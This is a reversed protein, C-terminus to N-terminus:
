RGRSGAHGSDRSVPASAAGAASTSPTHASPASAAVTGSYGGSTRPMTVYGLNSDYRPSDSSGVYVPRPAYVQIVEVPSWFRYGYPSYYSGRFPVFTFMGFYPNWMWASRDYVGGYDRLSKAASVNAMSIYEARRRSWRNLADSASKDFKELAMEGDFSLLKGDKVLLTKGGADVQAEGDYVRLQAPDSDFRYLGKKLLRVSHDNYVITVANDKLIDDAEVVVSGSVFELRTDILRNTIMRISSNEGVRLFVGPTLLVEARGEETRLTANEKLEPFSGFKSEVMQDAIFVRGEVQHIMGSKASIALQALAASFSFSAAVSLYVGLSLFSKM